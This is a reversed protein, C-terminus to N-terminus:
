RPRLLRLMGGALDISHARQAAATRAGWVFGINKSPHIRVVKGRKMRIISGCMLVCTYM